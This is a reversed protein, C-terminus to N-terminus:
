QNLQAKLNYQTLLYQIEHTIKQNKARDLENVERLYDNSTIVGNELQALSANKISERLEILENDKNILQQIKDLDNNNQITQFQQNFLFNEKQVEIEQQQLGVLALDNKKTYFGSIPINLRVGGIYFLDFENKLMNFGPKGYGGQFFAGLKPLNKSNINAKQQELGQKQLDFLKLEARKSEDQILIKDPKELTTNEEINKNIFLSLMQLFSKKTSQLELQKQDLNIIQAKLVDVNSRFIVGNELQAEAKKLGSSLDSKTLETQQLQEDTQLIGFYIQNIRMELQDTEVETKQLEIESSINAMKKQNAIMGGDYINQQVDAYVKYQDKSLPEINMNPLQIPFQIVDNQYTAQGVIQIQPLWGKAANQINYEKTKAILDHRKILPYNQKALDYCEELTLTQANSSFFLLLFILKLIKM